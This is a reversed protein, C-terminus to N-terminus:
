AWSLAPRSRRSQEVAALALEVAAAAAGWSLTLGSGRHGHNHVVPVPGADREVRPAGHLPSSEARWEVPRRVAAGALAPLLRRCRELVPALVPGAVPERLEVFGGVLLWKGRPVVFVASAPGSRPEVVASHAERVVPFASGDNVLLASGGHAPPGPDGVPPGVCDVVVDATLEARLLALGGADVHRQMLGVGARLLAATLWAVYEPVDIMPVLYSCADSVGSDRGVGHAGILGADHRFGSLHDAASRALRTRPAPVYYTARRLVVGTTRDRALEGFRRYAAVAWGTEPAPGFVAPRWEWLAGAAAGAPRGFGSAVVTVGFGARRLLLATTLANVDAGVVVARPRRPCALVPTPEPWRATWTMAM